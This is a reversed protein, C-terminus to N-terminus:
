ESVKDFIADVIKILNIKKKSLIAGFLLANIGM